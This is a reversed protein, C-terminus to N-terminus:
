KRCNRSPVSIWPKWGLKASVLAAAYAEVNQTAHMGALVGNKQSKEGQLPNRKAQEIHLATQMADSTEPNM